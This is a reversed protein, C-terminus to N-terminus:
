QKEEIIANIVYYSEFIEEGDLIDDKDFFINYIPHNLKFKGEELKQLESFCIMEWTNNPLIVIPGASDEARDWLHQQLFELDTETFQM